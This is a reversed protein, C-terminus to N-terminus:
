MRTRMFDGILRELLGDFNKSQLEVYFEMAKSFEGLEWLLLGIMDDIMYGKDILRNKDSYLRKKVNLMINILEAKTNNIKLIENKVALYTILVDSYNSKKKVIEWYRLLYEEAEEPRNESILTSILTSYAGELYISGPFNDLFCKMYDVYDERSILSRIDRYYLFHYRDSDPFEAIMKKNLESYLKAKDKKLIREQSYGDHKMVVNNLQIVLYNTGTLENMYVPYEHVCGYFKFSGNNKIIRGANYDISDDTNIVKPSFVVPNKNNQEVNLINIKLQNLCGAQLVEDSDVCFIWDKKSLDLGYNRADSFNDNWQFHVVRVSPYLSNLIDLTRDTSGTDILIIEDDIGIQSIIADLCRGIVEEENRCIIEIAITPYTM